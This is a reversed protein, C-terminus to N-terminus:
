QWIDLKHRTWFDTVFNLRMTSNKSLLLNEGGRNVLFVSSKCLSEASRFLLIVTAKNRCKKLCFQTSITLM